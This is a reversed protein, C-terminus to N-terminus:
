CERARGLHTNDWGLGVSSFKGLLNNAQMVPKLSWMVLVLVVLWLLNVEPVMFITEKM